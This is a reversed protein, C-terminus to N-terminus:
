LRANLNWGRFIGWPHMVQDKEMDHKYRMAHGFEHALRLKWDLVKCIVLEKKKHDCWGLALFRPYGSDTLSKMKEWGWSKHMYEYYEALGLIKVEYINKKKILM